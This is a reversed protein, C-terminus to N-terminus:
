PVCIVLKKGFVKWKLLRIFSHLTLEFDHCVYPADYGEIDITSMVPLCVMCGHWWSLYCLNVLQSANKPRAYHVWPGLTSGLARIGYTIVVGVFCIVCWCEGNFLLFKM